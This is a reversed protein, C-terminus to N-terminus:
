RRFFVHYKGNVMIPITLLFMLSFNWSSPHTPGANVWKGNNDNKKWFVYALLLLKRSLSIQFHM